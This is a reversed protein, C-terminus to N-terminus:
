RPWFLQGCETPDQQAFQAQTM